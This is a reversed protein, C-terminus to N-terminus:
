AKNSLILKPEARKRLRLENFIFSLLFLDQVRIIYQGRGTLDKRKSKERKTKWNENGLGAKRKEM